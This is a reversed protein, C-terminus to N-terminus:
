INLVEKFKKQDFGSIKIESGDEKSIVTFPVGIMGNNVSMFEMMISPDADTIKKVYKINNKSLWRTLTECAACISTSYITIDMYNIRRIIATQM